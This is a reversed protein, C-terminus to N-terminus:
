DCVEQRAGARDQEGSHAEFEYFVNETNEDMVVELLHGMVGEFMQSNHGTLEVLM